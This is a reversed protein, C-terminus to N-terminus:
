DIESFGDQVLRQMEPLSLKEGAKISAKCAKMAYLEDLISDFSLPEKHLTINLLTELDIQQDVFVKPVAHVIIKNEGFLSLDFGLKQLEEIKQDILITRPIEITIPQLLTEPALGQEHAKKKMKEFAIREALAHQDILYMGDDAQLIIYMNRM